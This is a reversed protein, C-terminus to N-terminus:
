ISVTEFKIWRNVVHTLLIVANHVGVKFQEYNINMWLFLSVFEDYNVIIATETMTNTSVNWDNRYYKRAIKQFFYDQSKTIYRSQQWKSYLVREGEPTVYNIFCQEEVEQHLTVIDTNPKVNKSNDFLIENQTLRILHIIFRIFIGNHRFGSETCLIAAFIWKQGVYFKFFFLENRILWFCSFWKKLREM